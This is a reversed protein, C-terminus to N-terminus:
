SKSLNNQLFSTTAEDECLYVLAYDNFEAQDLNQSRDYDFDKFAPLIKSYDNATIRALNM